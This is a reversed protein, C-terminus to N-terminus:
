LAHDAAGHLTRTRHRCASQQGGSLQGPYKEAQEGIRVRNLYDHAKAQAEAKKTGRSLMQPMACNDLVTLHPFLNFHQFVMGAERRVADLNRLDDGLEVGSVTITGRDHHELQNICRILTSKGSGSPGRIVVRDKEAVELEIGPLAQFQGFYKDLGTINIATTM